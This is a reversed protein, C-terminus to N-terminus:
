NQSQSKKRPCVVYFSCSVLDNKGILDYATQRKLRFDDRFQKDSKRHVVNLYDEVKARRRGHLLMNLLPFLMDNQNDQIDELVADGVDSDSSSSSTSSDDSSSSMIMNELEEDSSNGNAGEEHLVDRLVDPIIDMEVLKFVQYVCSFLFVCVFPFVHTFGGCWVCVLGWNWPLLPFFTM